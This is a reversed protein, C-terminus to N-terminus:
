LFDRRAIGNFLALRRRVVSAGDRPLHNILFGSYRVENWGLGHSPGLKGMKICRFLEGYEEQNSETEGYAELALLAESVVEVFKGSKLWVKTWPEVLHM